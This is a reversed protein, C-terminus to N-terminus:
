MGRLIEDLVQNLHTGLDEALFRLIKYGREQLRADKLRDHRYSAADQFHHPGDIEIVQKNKADLFDVEMFSQGAFPIPLKTNLQFRDKTANLSQLRQYLFAESQSRAREIGVKEGLDNIETVNVFLEALPTDVGDRILRQVSASYQKKWGVDVPLPVDIPWGPIVSAPMLLTYGLREYERCRRDFMRALMPENLDAYDYVRVHSKEAFSRHLRGVYQSLTGKWSIPMTLFLHDLPPHDFGEGIFKGTAVLVTQSQTNQLESLSDALDSKKMGGQIAVINCKRNSLEEVLIELHETRETLVLPSGGNKICSAVDDCIVKNRQTDHILQDMLEMFEARKDEESFTEPLRTFATPRVYVQRNIESTNQHDKAEVRHRVPGCQMFIIPHHGDKRTVTASLGLVYKAKARRVALEFNRASIHHCEDIIIQGYDAVRDDVVGKRVVSQILAVDIKGRLKRRGAGLRGIEKTEVDLFSTLREVWQNMLQQRHVLILTNVGREAIMSAALVTKGFATTAALVGFDHAVLAKGAKQQDDRLVGQFQFSLPEGKNRLDKKRYKIKHTRFIQLVEELCGRPLALHEEFDEACAIIRPTNFTPLRMAQAKYFEPNQFAALRLLRNRLSPSLSDKPLYIQDSLVFDIKEPIPGEIKLNPRRSAPAKWPELAYAEDPVARVGLLNGNRAAQDVHTKIESFSLVRVESLAKWPDEIANLEYDLFTSNGKKRPAAQLPLAILNGFGGKPLTDQNPFLRDYSAFGLDPRAEMTETILWTGLKRALNAPVADKFFIWLHAGNGSRSRELLAPINHTLCTKNLARADEQWGEKDLDIALFFCTEDLLMPYVGMVFPQNKEDKGMLHCRTMEDSIPIFAKNPCNACKIRPKNCIGRVWENRCAPAYGSKGTRRNEFRKAFVDERGRFRSQFLRIKEEPSSHHTCM